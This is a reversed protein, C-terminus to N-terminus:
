MRGSLGSRFGRRRVAGPRPSQSIVRGVRRSRARRVRGVSCNARRIRDRRSRAQARNGRCAAAPRLLRRRRHLHRLRLRLHLRHLHARPRHHPLLLRRHHHLRRRHHHRRCTSPPPPPPPPPTPAAQEECASSRIPNRAQPYCDTRRQFTTCGSEWGDGPNRYAASANSRVARMTWYALRRRRPRFGPASAREGLLHRGSFSRPDATIPVDEVVVYSQELREALMVGPLDGAANQYFRVHVSDPFVGGQVIGFIDIQSITWQEGGPVIFDDAAEDDLENWADEFDQTTVAFNGFNDFQDDLIPPPPGTSGLSRLKATYM